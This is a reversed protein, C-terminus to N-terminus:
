AIEVPILTLTLDLRDDEHRPERDPEKDDNHVVIIDDEPEARDDCRGAIDIFVVAM